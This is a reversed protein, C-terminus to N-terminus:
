ADMTWPDKIPALLDEEREYRVSSQLSPPNEKNGPLSQRQLHAVLVGVDYGHERAIADKTAWLEQIIEDAM